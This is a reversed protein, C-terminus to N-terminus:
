ESINLILLDMKLAPQDSALASLMVPDLLKSIALVLTSQELRTQKIRM